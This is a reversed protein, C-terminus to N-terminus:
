WRNTNRTETSRADANTTHVATAIRALTGNLSDAANNWENRVQQFAESAQGTYMQTLNQVKTRLDGLRENIAAVRGDIGQGLEDISAFDYSMFGDM